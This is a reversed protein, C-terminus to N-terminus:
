TTSSDPLLPLVEVVYYKVRSHATPLLINYPNNTRTAIKDDLFWVKGFIPLGARIKIKYQEQSTEGLFYRAGQKNLQLVEYHKLENPQLLVPIDLAIDALSISSQRLRIVKTNIDRLRQPLEMKPHIHLTQELETLAESILDMKAYVGDKDSRIENHLAVHMEESIVSLHNEKDKLAQSLQDNDKELKVLKINLSLLEEDTKMKDKQISEMKTKLKETEEEYTAKSLLMSNNLNTIKEELKLALSDKENKLLELDSKLTSIEKKHAEQLNEIEENTKKTLELDSRSVLHFTRPTSTGTSRPTIQGGMTQIMQQLRQNEMRLIRNEEQMIQMEKLDSVLLSRDPSEIDIHPLDTDFPEIFVTATPLRQKLGPFIVSPINRDQSYKQYFRQRRELEKETIGRMQQQLKELDRRLQAGWMLRRKMEILCDTQIEPLYHLTWIHKKLDKHRKHADNYFLDLGNQFDILAGWLLSFFYRLKMIVKEYLLVKEQFTQKVIQASNEEIQNLETLIHANNIMKEIKSHISQESEKSNIMASLVECENKYIELKREMDNVKKELKDINTEQVKLDTIQTFKEQQLRMRREELESLNTLLQNLQNCMSEQSQTFSSYLDKIAPETILDGLTNIKDKKLEPHLETTNLRVITSDMKETKSLGEVKSKEVYDRWENASRITEKTAKSLYNYFAQIMGLQNRQEDFYQRSLESNMFVREFCSWIKTDHAKLHSMLPSTFHDPFEFHPNSSKMLSNPSTEFKPNLSGKAVRKDILFIKESNLFQSFENGDMTLLLQFDRPVGYQLELYKNIKDM